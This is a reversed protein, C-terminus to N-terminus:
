AGVNEMTLAKEPCILVCLECAVCDAPRRLWPLAGVMALCEVPCAAVCDGCGTCTRDDVAPLASM